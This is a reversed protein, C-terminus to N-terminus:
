ILGTRGVVTRREIRVGFVHGNCACARQGAHGNRAIQVDTLSEVLRCDRQGVHGDLTTQNCCAARNLEIVDGGGFQVDARGKGTALDLYGRGTRRVDILDCDHGGGSQGLGAQLSTCGSELLDVDVAILIHRQRQISAKALDGQLICVTQAQRCTSEDLRQSDLPCCADLARAGDLICDKLCVTCDAGNLRLGVREILAHRRGNLACRDRNIATLGIM